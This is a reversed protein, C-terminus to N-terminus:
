MTGGCRAHERSLTGTKIYMYTLIRGLMECGQFRVWFIVGWGVVRLDPTSGGEMRSFSLPPPVEGSEARPCRKWTFPASLCFM